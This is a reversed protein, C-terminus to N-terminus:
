LNNDVACIAGFVIMFIVPIAVLIISEGSVKDSLMFCLTWVGSFGAAMTFLKDSLKM